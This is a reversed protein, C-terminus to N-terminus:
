DLWAVHIIRALYYFVTLGRKQIQDNNSWIKFSWLLRSSYMAFCAHCICDSDNLWWRWKGILRQMMMHGMELFVRVSHFVIIDKGDGRKWVKSSPRSSGSGRVEFYIICLSRAFHRCDRRCARTITYLSVTVQCYRGVAVVGYRQLVADQYKRIPIQWPESSLALVVSLISRFDVGFFLPLCRTKLGGRINLTSVWRLRRQERAKKGRLCAAFPRPFLSLPLIHYDNNM